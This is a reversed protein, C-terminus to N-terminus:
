LNKLTNWYLCWKSDKYQPSYPPEYYPIADKAKVMFEIKVTKRDMVTSCVIVDKDSPSNIIPDSKRFSWSPKKSKDSVWKPTSKCHYNYTPTVIDPDDKGKVRRVGPTWIEMDPESPERGGQQLFDYFAWEALKGEYQNSNITAEKHGRNIYDKTATGDKAMSEVFRSIEETIEDSVVITRGVKKIISDSPM